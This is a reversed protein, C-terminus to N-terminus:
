TLLRQQVVLVVQRSGEIQQLHHVFVVALPDTLTTLTHSTTKEEDAVTYPASGTGIM